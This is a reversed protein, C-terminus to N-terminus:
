FIVYAVTPFISGESAGAKKLEDKDKIGSTVGFTHLGAGIGCEIDFVEDGIYAINDKQIGYNEAIFQLLNDLSHPDPKRFGSAPVAAGGEVGVVDEFLDIIEFQQLVNHADQTHRSTFVFNVIGKQLNRQLIEVANDVLPIPDLTDIQIWQKYIDEAFDKDVNFGIEILEIPSLGWNERLRKQIEATFVIGNKEALIGLRAFGKKGSNLLTGDLDYIAVQINLKM